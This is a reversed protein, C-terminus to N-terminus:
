KYERYFLVKHRKKCPLRNNASTNHTMFYHKIPKGQYLYGNIDNIIEQSEAIAKNWLDNFSDTIEEGTFPNFITKHDLNLYPEIKSLDVDYYFNGMRLGRSIFRLIPNKSRRINKDFQQMLFMGLEYDNAINRKQFVKGYLRNITRKLSNKLKIRRKFYDEENYGTLNMVYSDIMMELIAHPSFKYKWKGNISLGYTMYEIIIHIFSDLDYHNAQCYTWEIVQREDELHNEKISKLLYEFYEQTKAGHQYEFLDYDIFMLADPGMSFVKLEEPDIEIPLDIGKIVEMSHISHTVYSPM